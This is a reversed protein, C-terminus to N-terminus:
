VQQSHRFCVKLESHASFCDRVKSYIYTQMRDLSRNV